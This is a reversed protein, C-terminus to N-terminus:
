WALIEMQGATQRLDQNWDHVRSIATHLPQEEIAPAGVM